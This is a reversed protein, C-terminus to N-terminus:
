EEADRNVMHRNLIEVLWDLFYTRSDDKERWKKGSNQGSESVAKGSRVRMENYKKYIYHDTIDVKFAKALNRIIEKATLKDGFCKAVKFAYGLEVLAVKKDVWQLNIESLMEDESVTEVAMDKLNAITNRIFSLAKSIFTALRNNVADMATRNHLHSIEVEAVLLASIAYGKQRRDSCIEVVKVVFDRYTIELDKKNEGAILQRIFETETLAFIDM